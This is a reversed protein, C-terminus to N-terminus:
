REALGDSVEETENARQWSGDPLQEYGNRRLDQEILMRVHKSTDRHESEAHEVLKEKLPQPVSVSLFSKGNMIIVLIGCYKVGTLVKKLM